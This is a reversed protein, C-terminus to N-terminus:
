RTAYWGAALPAAVMAGRLIANASPSEAFGSAGLAAAAATLSVIGAGRAAPSASGAWRRLATAQEAMRPASDM